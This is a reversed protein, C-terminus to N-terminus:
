FIICINHSESIQDNVFKLMLLHCALFFIYFVIIYVNQNTMKEFFNDVIQINPNRRQRQMNQTMCVSRLITQQYKEKMMFSNSEM